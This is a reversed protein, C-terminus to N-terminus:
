LEVVLRANNRSSNLMQSSIKKTNLIKFKSVASKIRAIGAMHKMSILSSKM